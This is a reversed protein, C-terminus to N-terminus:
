ARRPHEDLKDLHNRLPHLVATLGGHRLHREDPTGLAHLTTFRKRRARAAVLALLTTKGLGDDGALVRVSPRGGSREDDAIDDLLGELSALEDDRGALVRSRGGGRRVM